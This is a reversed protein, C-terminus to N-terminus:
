RRNHQKDHYDAVIGHRAQPRSAVRAAVDQRTAQGRESNAINIKVRIAATRTIRLDSKLMPQM